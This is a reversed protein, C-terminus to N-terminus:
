EHIKKLTEQCAALVKSYDGALISSKAIFLIDHGKWEGDLQRYIERMRRKASNRWVANGNRKGAIFAVRGKLDHENVQKDYIFTLYRNSLRTGTSFMRSIEDSSKIVNM